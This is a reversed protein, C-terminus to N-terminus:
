DHRAAQSRAGGAGVKVKLAFNWTGVRRQCMSCVLMSPASATSLDSSQSSMSSFTDFGAIAILASAYQQEINIDTRSTDVPKWGTEDTREMIAGDSSTRAGKIYDALQQQFGPLLLPLPTQQALLQLRTARGKFASYM